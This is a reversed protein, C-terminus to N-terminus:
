KPAFNVMQVNPWLDPLLLENEERVSEQLPIWKRFTGVAMSSSLEEESLPRFDAVKSNPKYQQLARERAEFFDPIKVDIVNMMNRTQDEELITFNWGALHM